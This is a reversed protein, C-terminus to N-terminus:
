GPLQWETSSGCKVTKINYSSVKEMM